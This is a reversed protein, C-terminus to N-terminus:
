KKGYYFFWDNSLLTLPELEFSDIRYDYSGLSRFDINTGCELAEVAHFHRFHIDDRGTLFEAVAFVTNLYLSLATQLCEDGELFPLSDCIKLLDLNFFLSM